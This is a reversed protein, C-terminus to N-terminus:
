MPKTDLLVDIDTRPDKSLIMFNAPDGINLNGLLIGNNADYAIMGDEIFIEDASVIILKKGKILLNVIRDESQGTRDILLANQILINDFEQARAFGNALIIVLIIFAEKFSCLLCRM